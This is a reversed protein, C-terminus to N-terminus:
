RFCDQYACRSQQTQIGTVPRREYIDEDATLIPALPLTVYDAVDSGFIIKQNPDTSWIGTMLDIPLWAWFNIVM